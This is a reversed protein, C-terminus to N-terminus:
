SRPAYRLGRWPRLTTHRAPRAFNLPHRANGFSQWTAERRPLIAFSIGLLLSNSSAGGVANRIALKRRESARETFHAIGPPHRLRASTRRPYPLTARPRAGAVGDM